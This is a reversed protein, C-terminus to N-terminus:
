FLFFVSCVDLQFSVLLGALFNLKHMSNMFNNSMRYAFIGTEYDSIVQFDFCDSKIEASSPYHQFFCDFRKTAQIHIIFSKLYKQKM